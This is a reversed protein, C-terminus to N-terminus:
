LPDAELFLGMVLDSTNTGDDQYTIQLLDGIEFTPSGTVNSTNPAANVVSYTHFLNPASITDKYFRFTADAGANANIFTIRQLRSRFGVVIPQNVLNSYGVLQGNSLTGNHVLIQPPPVSQFIVANDSTQFGPFQSM